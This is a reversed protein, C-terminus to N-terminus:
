KGDGSQQALEDYTCIVTVEKINESWTLKTLMLDSENTLYLRPNWGDVSYRVLLSKDDNPDSFTDKVWETINDSSEAWKRNFIVVYRYKSFLLKSRILIKTNDLLVDVHKEDYPSITGVINDEFEAICADFDSKKRLFLSANVIETKNKKKGTHKVQNYMRHEINNEALWTQCGHITWGLHYYIDNPLAARSILIKYPFRGYFLRSTHSKKM